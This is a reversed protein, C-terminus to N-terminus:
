ADAAIRAVGIPISLFVRTGAGGPNVGVACSGGVEEARERMSTLGVGPRPSIPMGVGNDTVAIDLSDAMSIVIACRSAGAHKVVNTMAEEVIRYAAVEIAAPLPALPTPAALSVLLDPGSLRQAREGISGILGLEDLAPPRLNQVLRRIEAVALKLESRLENAQAEAADPDVRILSRLTGAQMSLAALQGGLGDHVDRRLRRREEERAIVLRERSRLLAATLQVGHAAAAIQSALDALLRQDPLDLRNEPLRPAIVLEGITASQYVLPFHETVGTEVGASAAILRENGKALVISVFPLKLAGAITEALERLVEADPRAGALRQGLESLVGYPDDRRGYLVRDVGRQVRERVPQFAVAVVGVGVVSLLFSGQQDIVRGLGVVVGAYSLVVLATMALWVLSRGLLADIDFLRHNLMAVGISLPVIASAIPMALTFGILAAVGGNGGSIHRMMWDGAFFIAIGLVVGTGAWTLQQRAILGTSRRYRLGLSLVASLVIVANWAMDAHPFLAAPEPTRASPALMFPLAGAAIMAVPIAFWRSVLRGDPFYFPLLFLFGVAALTTVRGLAILIPNHGVAEALDPPYFAGLGAALNLSLCYALWNSPGRRILLVSVVLGLGFAIVSLAGQILVLDRLSVGLAALAARLREPDDVGFSAPDSSERIQRPTSAIFVVLSAALMAAWGLRLWCQRRDALGARRLIASPSSAAAWHM